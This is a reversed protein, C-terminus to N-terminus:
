IYAGSAVRPLIVKKQHPGTNYKPSEAERDPQGILPATFQEYIVILFCSKRFQGGARHSLDRANPVLRM